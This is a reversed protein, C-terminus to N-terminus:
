YGGRQVPHLASHPRVADTYPYKGLAKSFHPRSPPPLVKLKRLYAGEEPIGTRKWKFPAAGHARRQTGNANAALM